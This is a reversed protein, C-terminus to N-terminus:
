RWRASTRWHGCTAPDQQKRSGPTVTTDVGATDAATKAARYLAHCERVGSSIYFRTFGWGALVLVVLAVLLVLVPPRHGGPDPPV